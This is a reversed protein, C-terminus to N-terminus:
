SKEEKSTQKSPLTIVFEAGEGPQSHAIITGNHREAIKRCIALGVGSGEYEARGHLRQFVAFIRDTYKEDFGIGNDRVSIEVNGNSGNGNSAAAKARISIVPTVGEIRFKLANGILNQILQRMQMPDADITPLDDCEISAGTEEIKVELDSLVEQTIKNLDIPIFPQAKTSVRSFSLLDQILLQMRSAASRMRELYDLGDGELKDGFRTKLRDSFAQVKRLPEQLDHSAVYAFDQLERNSQQLKDNFNKLQEEALERETIDNVIVIESRHGDFYVVHSTIEVSTITGDKKRHKSPAAICDRDAKVASVRAILEPIDELPRIDKLTLDDLFESHSFGYHKVTAENVALFRLTETDYVYVPFPNSEFLLRHQEESMRLNAEAKKRETIDQKIAIYHAIAGGGNAVPTITMEEDYLQGDKRKNVIEGKWVDGQRITRWLNEFLSKPNRGSNLIRPNQGIVENASYGTLKTFAPNIWEITGSNDTIAVGNAASVLAATQLRMREESSRLADEARKREIALAIRDGVNTLLTLHQPDYANADDYSQVVLVGIVKEPTHLPVGMWAAPTTGILKVEGSDVLERIGEATVLIPKEKKFVYATLGSGLRASSPRSDYADVFFHMDLMETDGDVLAVFCNKADLLKSIAQHIVIFSEDLNATCNIEQVIESIIEREIQARKNDTVDRVLGRFGIPAGAGDRILYISSEVSRKTGDKRVIDWDMLPVHQGTKCINVFHHKLRRASDDKIYRKHGMGLAEDSEYGIILCLAPNVFTFHGKLDTEFYGEDISTLINRYKEESQRLLEVNHVRDTIIQTLMFIGGISGDGKHWPRTEWQLWDLSGDRRPFADAECRKVAGALSHQHIEKWREPLDKFVEYHSKGIIDRGVLNYDTMWRDSVQLYRMETDLMAVAAPSHTVFTSLLARNAVLEQEAIKRETIDTWAGILEVPRGSGDRVVQRNDNVWRYGGNKHRLRYETSSTGQTITETISAVAADRDDPHVQGFWWDYSLTDKPDFGLLREINESSTIPVINEGEIKLRYIVAPSHAFTYQLQSHANHLEVEARRQETVDRFTWIRGYSEGNKGCVPSTYRDLIKGDILHIEDRSKEEPHAYLYEVRAKFEDPSCTQSVAFRLAKGDDPDNAIHQPINWLQDFNENKLIQNGNMDVILIGDLSATVQAELLATKWFIQDQTKRLESQTRRIETLDRIIAAVATPRGLADSVLFATASVPVLTSDKRLFENEFEVSQGTRAVHAALVKAQERADPAALEFYKMGGLLEERSFGTLQVFSDNVELINGNFDALGIASKSAAYIGHIREQLEGLRLNAKGTERVYMYQRFLVIGTLAAAVLIASGEIPETSEFAIHLLVAYTSAVGVYPTLLMYRTSRAKQRDPQAIRKALIYQYHAAVMIPYCALTFLADGPDGSQYTGLVSQYGFIFDAAFNFIMGVLVLDVPIRSGSGPTRMLLSAIGILLILDGVPYALSLITKLDWGEGAAAIPGLLFHWLVIGGGILVICSDLFFSLRQEANQLKEVLALLGWMMLPYYVLYGADAWSPFPQEGLYNEFYMWLVSAILFSLDALAILRWANRTRASLTPQRSTRWAIVGPGLYIFITVVNNIISAYEDGGWHFFVYLIHIFVFVGFVITLQGGWDRTWPHLGATTTEIETSEIKPTIVDQLM